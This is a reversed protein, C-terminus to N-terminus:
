DLLHAKEAAGLAETSVAIEFPTPRIPVGRWSYGQGDERQYVVGFGWGRYGAGIEVLGAQVGGALDPDLKWKKKEIGLRFASYGFLNDGRWVYKGLDKERRLDRHALPIIVYAGTELWRLRLYRMGYPAAEVRRAYEFTEKPDGTDTGWIGPNASRFLVVWKRKVQYRKKLQQLQADATGDRLAKDLAMHNLMVVAQGVTHAAEGTLASKEKELRTVAAFLVNCAPDLEAIWHRATDVRKRAAEDLPARAAQAEALLLMQKYYGVAERVQGGQRAVFGSASLVALSKSSERRALELLTAAVDYKEARIMESAAKYNENELGGDRAADPAAGEAGNAGGAWLVLVIGILLGHRGM